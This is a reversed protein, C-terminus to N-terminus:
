SGSPPSQCPDAFADTNKASINFLSQADDVGPVNFLLTIGLRLIQTVKVSFGTIHADYVPINKQQPTLKQIAASSQVKCKTRSM